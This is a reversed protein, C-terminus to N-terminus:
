PVFSTTVPIDGGLSYAYDRVLDTENGGPALYEFTEVLGLVSVPTLTPTVTAFSQQVAFRSEVLGKRGMTQVRFNTDINTLSQEGWCVFSTAASHFQEDTSYFNLGVNTALNGLSSFVDLTLLTLDTRVNGGQLVAPMGFATVSNGYRVTGVIKGPVQMYEAGNFDLRGDGNLDTPSGTTFGPGDPGAQIAIANYGRASTPTPNKMTVDTPTRLIADGILGDFKIPQGSSNIVWVILYGRDCNPPNFSTTSVNNPFVESSITCVPFPGPTCMTTVGEPNFYLSGNVTTELDFDKEACTAPSSPHDVGPCVWHARLRVIQGLACGPGGPGTLATPCVVSIELETKAHVTKLSVATDNFTGRIFKPFVLVSGPQQPDGLQATAPGAVGISLLGLLLIRMSKM